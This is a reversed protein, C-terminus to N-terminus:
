HESYLTCMLLEDDLMDSMYLKVDRHILKHTMM